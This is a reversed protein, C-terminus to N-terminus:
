AASRRRTLAQLELEFRSIREIRYGTPALLKNLLKRVPDISSPARVSM